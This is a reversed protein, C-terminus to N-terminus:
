DGAITLGEVLLSPVVRSLYGRADNAPTIRMLFDRLNGAITAENVPMKVEGNEVWFGSIGRSYDGTNSNITSGIMGTVWLGTGMEALLEEKSKTGQTLALNGVSPSPPSSVGRSANGTPTRGLKRANALDMVWESLVGDDVWARTQVPLGEGDFPRSGSIRKRSPDETISLGKPLIQEGMADKLWTSGRAVSAGNIAAMVHGVLSSSIREDFLVPYSGTKPRQSGARAV